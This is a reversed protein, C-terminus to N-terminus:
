DVTDVFPSHRWTKIKSLHSQITRIQARHLSVIFLDNKWFAYDDEENDPYKEHGEEQPLYERLFVARKAVLEAEIENEVTAQTNELIIVSLSYNLDLVRNILETETESLIEDNSPLLNLKQNAVEETNNNLRVSLQM